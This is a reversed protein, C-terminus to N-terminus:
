EVGVFRASFVKWMSDSQYARLLSAPVYISGYGSSTSTSIPTGTLINTESIGVVSSGMLYLSYLNACKRFARSAIYTAASFSAVFLASCSDFATSAISECATFNVASLATCFAFASEGINLVAQCNVETLNDCYAFAFKGINTIRSNSYVGSITREIIGDEASHDGGGGSVNVDVSNHTTTDYVGNSSVSLATQAVLAGSSVVKGEDGAAYTNPVNVVVPSYAKSSPASYTGNASVSLSEVTIDGGANIKDLVQLMLDENRSQPPPLESSPTGDLMATLIAETRSQPPPFESAPTDDIIGQWLAENRTGM